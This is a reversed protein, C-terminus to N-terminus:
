FRTRVQAYENPAARRTSRRDFRWVGSHAGPEEPFRIDDVVVLDHPLSMAEVYALHKAYNYRWAKVWLDSCMMERGWETGLTQMAYRGSRGGLEDRPRNKETLSGYIASPDTIQELMRKLPGAFSIIKYDVHYELYEAVSTKGVGAPGTLGILSPLGHSLRIDHEGLYTKM